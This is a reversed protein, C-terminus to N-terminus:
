KEVERVTVQYLDHDHITNAKRLDELMEELIDKALVEKALGDKMYSLIDSPSLRIWIRVEAEVETEM